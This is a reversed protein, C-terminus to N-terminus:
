IETVSKEYIDGDTGSSVSPILRVNYVNTYPCENEQPADARFFVARDLISFMDFQFSVHGECVSNGSVKRIENINRFEQM